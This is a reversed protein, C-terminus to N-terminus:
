LVWHESLETFHVPFEIKVFDEKMFKAGLRNLLSLLCDFHDDIRFDFGGYISVDNQRRAIVELKESSRVIYVDQPFLKEGKVSESARRPNNWVANKSDKFIKYASDIEKQRFKEEEGRVLYLRGGFFKTYAFTAARWVEQSSDNRAKRILSILKENKESLIIGMLVRKPVPDDKALVSEEIAKEDGIDVLLQLFLGDKGYIKSGICSSLFEIIENKETERLSKYIKTYHSSRFRIVVCIFWIAVFLLLGFSFSFGFLLMAIGTLAPFLGFYNHLLYLILSCTSIFIGLGRVSRLM